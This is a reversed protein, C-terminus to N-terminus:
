LSGSAYPLGVEERPEEAAVRMPDIGSRGGILGSYIADFQRAAAEASHWKLAFLRSRRGIERRKEPNEILDVLVDHVTEPTASVIPLEDVFDPIEKRMGELWEPRLYCVVPKGLMLAERVNGGYWGFTLMDCVIDAQAQIYRLEKNPINEKIFIMEVDHGEARLQDVLPVYIHTSKVNRLTEAQTRHQFNGVAHYIKVTREDLGLRRAAPVELGPSWFDPDLCYFEPVEHCRPDLNYDVRNGGMLVQYDAIENRVAGWALNREDSCVTPVERWPCDACVPRDGWSAFSSQAVGDLCGNGSYVVKKGLRKLLRIEDWRNFKQAFWEHLLHSFRMGQAGTFHFVDYSRLARQYFSLHRRLDGKGEEALRFDEGHYFGANAPDTDWTLADAVWGRERLARSLYWTNYYAQGPYLVRGRPKPRRRIRM